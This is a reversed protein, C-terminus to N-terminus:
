LSRDNEFLKYISADNNEKYICESQIQNPDVTDDNYEDEDNYHDVLIDDESKLAYKGHDNSADSQSNKANHDDAM